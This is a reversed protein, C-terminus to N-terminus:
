KNQFIALIIKEIETDQVCQSQGIKQQKFGERFDLESM